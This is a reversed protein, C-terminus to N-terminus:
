SLWGIVVFVQFHPIKVVHMIKLSLQELIFHRGFIFGFVIVRRFINVGGFVIVRGSVVVRGFNKTVEKALRKLTKWVVMRVEFRNRRSSRENIGEVFGVNKKSWQKTESVHIQIFLVQLLCKSTIAIQCMCLVRTTMRNVM